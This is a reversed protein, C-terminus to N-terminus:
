GDDEEENLKFVFGHDLLHKILSYMLLCMGYIAPSIVLWFQSDSM